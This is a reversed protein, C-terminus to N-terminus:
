GGIFRVQLYHTSCSVCPDYARALLEFAREIEKETRNEALLRPLLVEMDRQINGHNQNTPIVCDAGRCIHDEDYEYRHVLLGRPVEVAATGPGYRTPLGPEPSGLGGSILEDLLDMSERIGHMIEVVQAATNLYPNTLPAVLGLRHAIERAEPRLRAHHLNFRAMAGVMYSGLRHRAYKATSQPVMYENAVSRYEAVPVLLTQSGPLLCGLYDGEVMPYEGPGTLAVYETTRDFIPLRPALSAFVDACTRVDPLAEQEL